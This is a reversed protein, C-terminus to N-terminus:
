ARTKARFGATLCAAEIPRNRGDLAEYMQEVMLPAPGLSPEDLMIM